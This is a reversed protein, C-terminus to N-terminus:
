PRRRRDRMIQKVVNRGPIGTVGGGGHTASGAQYLGRIPTRLDAYGAAPRGHFMQGPTLEGHFINGGVLGYEQEMTHPGIVQRGIVSDTFGPAVTELRAVLRDAYAELEATHPAGAYTHPVWQTFASVVHKGEPALTPDLVSPICVDAFPLTAPSGAAAETFSREIEELSDALVITGGHVEPAYAPHSTFTPLRDIAFNVKVTGSRSRWAEIDTVFEAPLEARDLLELFSIRPHATTIVTPARLETGDALTVGLVAGGRTDIRAVPSGTRIETGFARAAAAMAQTVGGMGGRPFGWGAQQGGTQDLHHHLTVFGTGPSRPGAWTGIVGSVSLLGRMADSEFRDEVLDAISATFLRTLDVAARVDVHRLRSALGAQAALDLPRKSGLKPPIEHLLPGVLRGLHSLWTDWREYADADRASFRSIERHREAPDDPLALYRGDARPAFYPGQPYVHYGHEVLRLDRVMDAPLLSVVYSLSTVTFDPGFPHESVAAGGVTDRRELVLVRRGARALYAAAVLGNHGGGIVIVDYASM